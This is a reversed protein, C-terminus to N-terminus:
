KKEAGSSCDFECADPAICVCGNALEAKIWVNSPDATGKAGGTKSLEYWVILEGQANSIPLCVSDFDIVHDFGDSAQEATLIFEQKGETGPLDNEDEDQGKWHVTVTDKAAFNQRDGAVTVTAGEWISQCCGLSKFFDSKDPFSVPVLTGMQFTDVKVSTPVTLTPNGAPLTPNTVQLQVPIAQGDGHRAVHEYPLPVIIETEDGVLDVTVGTSAKNWIVEVVDGARLNSYSPLKVSVPLDKDVVRILNEEPNAGGGLVTVTGLAPNEPGPDPNEPGPIRLDVSTKAASPPSEAILGRFVKYDVSVEKPGEGSADGESILAGYSVIPSELPFQPNTGVKFRTLARAGWTVEIEDQPLHNQFEDIYVTVGLIADSRDILPDPTETALPIIATKLGSAMPKFAISLLTNAPLKSENGARSYAYYFFEVTGDEHLPDGSGNVFVEKPIVGSMAVEPDFGSVPRKALTAVEQVVGTGPIRMFIKATDGPRALTFVPLEFPLGSNAELYEPTIRDTEFVMPPPAINRNPDNKDVTFVTYDSFVPGAGNDVYYQLKYEGEAQFQGAPVGIALPFSPRRDYVEDIIPTPNNNFFVKFLAPGAGAWATPIEGQLPASLMATPILNSEIGENDPLLDKLTIAALAFVKGSHRRSNRKLKELLYQERAQKGELDQVKINM